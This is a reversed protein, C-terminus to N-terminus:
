RGLNIKLSLAPYLRSSLVTKYVLPMTESKLTVAMAKQKSRHSGIFFPISATMGAIGVVMGVAGVVAESTGEDEYINGYYVDNHHHKNVGDVLLITGGVTFAAGASLFIIAATKKKRSNALYQDKTQSFVTIGLILTMILVSIKKM